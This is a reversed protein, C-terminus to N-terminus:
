YTISGDDWDLQLGAIYGTGLQLIIMPVERPQLSSFGKFDPRKDVAMSTSLSAFGILLNWAERNNNRRVADLTASIYFGDDRKELRYFDYQHRIFFNQGDCYGWYSTDPMENKTKKGTRYNMSELVLKLSDSSTFSTSPNNTMFEVFSRYLGPKISGDKLVPLSRTQVGRDTIQAISFTSAEANLTVEANKVASLITYELLRLLYYDWFEFNYHSGNKHIRYNQYVYNEFMSTDALGIFRYQDNGGTYERARLRGSTFVFNTDWVLQDQISLKELQIVLTDKGATFLLGYKSTLIHQLGLSQNKEKLALYRGSFFGIVTSDFRSDIVKIFSFPLAQTLHISEYKDIEGSHTQVSKKESYIFQAATLLPSVYLLSAVINLYLSRMFYAKVFYLSQRREQISVAM